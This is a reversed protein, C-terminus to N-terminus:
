GTRHERTEDLCLTNRNTFQSKFVLDFSANIFSNGSHTVLCKRPVRREDKQRKVLWSSVPIAVEKKNEARFM